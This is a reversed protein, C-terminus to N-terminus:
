GTITIAINNFNEGQLYATLAADAAGDYQQTGPNWTYLQDGYTGWTVVVTNGIATNIEVGNFGPDFVVLDGVNGTIRQRLIVIEDAGFFRPTLDGGSGDWGVTSGLDEVFMTASLLVSPVAPAAGEVTWPTAILPNSRFPSPILPNTM